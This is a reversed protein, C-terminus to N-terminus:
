YRPSSLSCFPARKGHIWLLPAISSKSKWEKSIDGEFFWTATGQHQAKSATNHNISPDPPSLWARNTWVLRRREEPSVTAVKVASQTLKDLRSLADEIGKGGISEKFYERFYMESGTDAIPFMEDPISERSQGQKIEETMIAFIELVELMIKVVIYGMVETM